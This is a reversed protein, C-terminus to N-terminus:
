TFRCWLFYFVVASTCLVICALARTVEVGRFWADDKDDPDLVIRTKKLSRQLDYLFTVGFGAILILFVTAMGKEIMTLEVSRSIAFVAGLLPVASTAIAWQQRKLFRLEEFLAARDELSYDNVPSNRNPAGM